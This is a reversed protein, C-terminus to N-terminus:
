KKTKLQKGLAGCCEIWIGGGGKGGIWTDALDPTAQSNASCAARITLSRWVLTQGSTLCM